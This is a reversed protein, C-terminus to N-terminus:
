ILNSAVLTCSFTSGKPFDIFWKNDGEFLHCALYPKWFGFSLLDLLIFKLDLLFGLGYFMSVVSVYIINVGGM